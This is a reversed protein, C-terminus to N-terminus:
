NHTPATGSPTVLPLKVSPLLTIEAGQSNESMLTSILSLVSYPLRSDPSQQKKSLVGEKRPCNRVPISQICVNGEGRRQLLKPALQSVQGGRCAGVVMPLLIKLGSFAAEPFNPYGWTGPNPNNSREEATSLQSIVSEATVPDRWPESNM